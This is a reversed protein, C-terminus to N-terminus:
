ADTVIKRVPKERLEYSFKGALAGPLLEHIRQVLTNNTFQGRRKFIGHRGLPITVGNRAFLPLGIHRIQPISVDLRSALKPFGSMILHSFRNFSPDKETVPGPMGYGFFDLKKRVSDWQERNHVWVDILERDSLGFKRKLHDFEEPKAPLDRSPFRILLEDFAMREFGYKEWNPPVIVNDPGFTQHSLGSHYFILPVSVTTVEPPLGMADLRVVTGDNSIYQSRVISFDRPFSGFTVVYKLKEIRDSEGPKHMMRFVPADLVSFSYKSIKNIAKYIPQKATMQSAFYQTIGPAIVRLEQAGVMAARLSASLRALSFQNPDVLVVVSDPGRYVEVGLDNSEARYSLTQGALWEKAPQFLIKDAILFTNM